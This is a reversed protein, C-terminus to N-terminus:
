NYNRTEAVADADRAARNEWSAQELTSKRTQRKQEDLKKGIQGTGSTKTARAEAARAAAARPDDSSREPGGVARGANNNRRQQQPQTSSMKRPVSSRANQAPPPASALTRGPGAFPDNSQKGCLNGM